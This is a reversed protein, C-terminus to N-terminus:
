VHARGIEFLEVGRVVLARHLDLDARGRRRKGAVDFEQRQVLGRPLLKPTPEGPRLVAGVVLLWFAATVASPRSVPATM